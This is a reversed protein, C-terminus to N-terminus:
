QQALVKAVDLTVEYNSFGPASGSLVRGSNPVGVEQALRNAHAQFNVNADTGLLKFQKLGKAQAEEAARMIMERHALRATQINVMEETSSGGRLIIAKVNYVVEREASTSTVHGFLCGPRAFQGVRVAPPQGFIIGAPLNPRVRSKSASKAFNRALARIGVKAGAAILGGAAFIISIVLLADEASQLGLIDYNTCLLVRGNPDTLLGYLQEDTSYPEYDRPERDRRGGVFVETGYDVINQLSLDVYLEEGPKGVYRKTGKPLYVQNGPFWGYHGVILYDKDIVPAAKHYDPYASVYGWPRKPATLISYSKEFDTAYDEFRPTSRTGAIFTNVGLGAIRDASYVEINKEGSVGTGRLMTRASYLEHYVVRADVKTCNSGPGGGFGPGKYQSRPLCVYDTM